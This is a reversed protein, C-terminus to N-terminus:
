VPLWSLAEAGNGTAYGAQEMFRSFDDEFFRANEQIVRPGIMWAEADQPAQRPDNTFVSGNGLAGNPSFYEASGANLPITQTSLSSV